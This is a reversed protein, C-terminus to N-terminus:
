SAAHKILREAWHGWRERFRDFVEKDFERVLEDEARVLAMMLVGLAEFGKQDDQGELYSWFQDYFKTGRNVIGVSANAVPRRDLFLSGPWDATSLDVRYDITAEAIDSAEQASLTSNDDVLLKIREELKDKRTLELARSASETASNDKGVEENVKDAVKSKVAAKKASGKRSKIISMMENIHEPLVKNLLLLLASKHDGEQEARAHDDIVDQQLKKVNRVEQKNNTLGFLEDLVPSFRVEAGWWRHRYEGRDFFDFHDFAIERGARVFSIGANSGYHKGQVSNGGLNQMEPQAITFQFGVRSLMEAGGLSYRVDVSFPEGYLVNTAQNEYGVLNNPTLLYLPDNALLPSSKAIRKQGSQISHVTINRKTGYDDDDDLFHRYIRCLDGNLQNILTEPRKFELNDMNKWLVLTGSGELKEPCAALLWDPLDTIVPEYLTHLNNEKIEDLDLHARMVRGPSTWSYVEVRRAQSISSGKLGFGFRGLGDRTELRTGWGMSLCSALTEESMGDGNDLVAINTVQSSTRSSVFVDESLTIIDINHANAEISNDVLEAVATATSRYGAQRLANLGLYADIIHPM